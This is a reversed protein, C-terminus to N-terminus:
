IVPYHVSSSAIFLVPLFACTQIIAAHTLGWLMAQFHCKLCGTRAVILSSLSELYILRTRRSLTVRNKNKSPHNEPDVNSWCSFFDSTTLVPQGCLYHYGTKKREHFHPSLTPVFQSCIFLPNVTTKQLGK